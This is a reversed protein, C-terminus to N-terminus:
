IDNKRCFMLVLLAYNFQSNIFTNWLLKTKELSLYKRARRLAHLKCNAIRCLSDIHEDFTLLKDTTIGPLVAKKREEIESSNVILKISNRKKKGLIM